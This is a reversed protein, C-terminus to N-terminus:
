PSVAGAKIAELFADPGSGPNYGVKKVLANGDPNIIVITPYGGAPYKAELAANQKTVKASLKKTHPFDVQVLVVNKQAWAKFKPTAFVEKDLKLCFGCWDSGTFDLLVNKKEAKAKEVAKDFDDTWGAPPAAQLGCLPLVLAVLLFPLFRANM